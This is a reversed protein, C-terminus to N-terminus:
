LEAELRGMWLLLSIVKLMVKWRSSLQRGMMCVRVTFSTDILNRIRRWCSTIIDHCCLFSIFTSGSIAFLRLVDDFFYRFMSLRMMVVVLM